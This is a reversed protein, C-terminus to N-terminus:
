ECFLKLFDTARYIPIGEYAIMDLLDSDGAIICDAKGAVALSLFKDDKPDRCAIVSEKVIVSESIAIYWEIYDIANEQPIYKRFKDRNLVTFLEAITDDSILTIGQKAVYDFLREFNENPRIAFSVLINTDVVVRIM